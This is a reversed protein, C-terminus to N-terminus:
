PQEERARSWRDWYTECAAELAAYDLPAGGELVYSAEGYALLLEGHTCLVALGDPRETASLVELEVDDLASLEIAREPPEFPTFAARTCGDLHVWLYATGASLVECLYPIQVQLSLRGPCAGQVAVISGDHLLNWVDYSSEM